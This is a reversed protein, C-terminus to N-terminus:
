MIQSEPKTDVEDRDMGVNGTADCQQEITRVADLQNHNRLYWLCVLKHVGPQNRHCCRCDLSGNSM